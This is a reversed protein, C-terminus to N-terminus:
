DINLRFDRMNVEVDDKWTDDGVFDSDSEDEYHTGDLSHVEDHIVTSEVFNENDNNIMKTKHGLLPDFENM